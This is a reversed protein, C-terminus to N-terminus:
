PVRAVDLIRQCRTQEERYQRNYQPLALVRKCWQIAEETRRTRLLLLALNTMAHPNSSGAISERYHAIAEEYRGKKELAWALCAHARPTEFGAAIAGSWLSVGDRWERNRAVSRGGGALILAVALVSVGRRLWARGTKSGYTIARDLVVGLLLCVGFSPVYLYREAVFFKTLPVVNSSPLYTVVVWAM